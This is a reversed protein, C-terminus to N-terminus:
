TLATRDAAYRGFRRPSERTLEVRPDASGLRSSRLARRRRSRVRGSREHYARTVSITKEILSTGAGLDQECATSEVFFDISAGYPPFRGLVEKLDGRDFLAAARVRKRESLFQRGRCERYPALSKDTTIASSYTKKGSREPCCGVVPTRPDPQIRLCNGPEQVPHGNGLHRFGDADYKPLQVKDHLGDGFPRRWTGCRHVETM